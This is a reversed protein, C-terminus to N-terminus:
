ACHPLKRAKYAERPPSALDPLAAVAAAEQGILVHSYRIMTLNIDSHRMLSQAVKPHVGAAALFTGTTYRLAHFDVIRGADDKEPIGAAQLNMRLTKAM